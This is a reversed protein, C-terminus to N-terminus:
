ESIILDTCDEPSIAPSIIRARVPHNKNIIRLVIYYAVVMPIAAFALWPWLTYLFYSFFLIAIPVLFLYSLILPATRDEGTEVTVYDGLQAEIDNYACIEVEKKNCIGSNACHECSEPRASRIYAFKGKIKVIKGTTKM